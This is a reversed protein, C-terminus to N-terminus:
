KTEPSMWLKASIRVLRAVTGHSGCLVRKVTAM